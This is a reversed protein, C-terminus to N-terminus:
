LVPPARQAFRRYDSIKYSADSYSIARMDGESLTATVSFVVGDDHSVFPIKGNGDIKANRWQKEGTRVADATVFRGNQLIDPDVDYPIEDHSVTNALAVHCEDNAVAYGYADNALLCGVFLMMVAMHAILRVDFGCGAAVGRHSLCDTVSNEGNITTMTM